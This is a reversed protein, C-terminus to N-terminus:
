NRQSSVHQLNATDERAIRNRTEEDSLNEEPVLGFTTTSATSTSKDNGQGLGM